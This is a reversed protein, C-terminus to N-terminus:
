VITAGTDTRKWHVGDSYVATKLDTAFAWGAGFQTASAATLSASTTLFARQFGQPAEILGVRAELDALYSTLDTSLGAPVAM